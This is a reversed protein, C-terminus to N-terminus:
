AAHYSYSLRLYISQGLSIGDVTNGIHLTNKLLLETLTSLADEASQKNKRATGFGYPRYPMINPVLSYRPLIRVAVHHSCIPVVELKISVFQM